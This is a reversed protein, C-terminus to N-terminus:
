GAEAFSPNERLAARLAADLDVYRFKFGAETLVAPVAGSGGLVEVSFGGLALRLALAPIRLVTPRRLARGLARTFEANTVLTPSVVNVPGSVDHELLFVAAELWDTLAIWPVWQRGGGFRGGVGLRYLLLQPKLLGGDRHLVPATRMLVVRVGAEAAPGTAAEWARCLDPLVGEGLPAAETVTRDGTDGYCSIGSSNLLV